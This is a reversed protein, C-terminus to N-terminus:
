NKGHRRGKSTIVIARSIRPTMVIYGLDNLQRLAKSVSHHSEYGLENSLERHTPMHGNVRRYEKLGNLVIILNEKM